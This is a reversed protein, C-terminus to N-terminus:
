LTLMVSNMEEVLPIKASLRCGRGPDTELQFTGNLAAVRERMSHLGFGSTKRDVKFGKGNDEITLDVRERDFDLQIKVKTAQAHKCINTLAEQVIRYITKSTEPPLHSNSEIATVVPIGTGRQFDEVLSNILCDIAEDEQVDARLTGVSQRVESIAIEGLKQARTLFSKANDPDKQWLKVATQLQVNLATLAHGLSDHIERAIRNREQVAALDEIQLAYRRLTDHALSLQQRTQREIFLTNAFQLVFTLSLAFMLLDSLHHMWIKPYAEPLVLPTISVIYQLQHISFLVFSLSAIAWRVPSQFIFYSRIVVILYLTPLIHLYGLLTGYFILGIQIFTYLIKGLFNGSPLKLGMLGLLILILLYQLPLHKNDLAEVIALLGCSALMLWESYFLLRIPYYSVNWLGNM